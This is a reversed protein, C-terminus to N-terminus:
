IHILSLAEVDQVDGGVAAANVTLAAAIGLALNFLFQM